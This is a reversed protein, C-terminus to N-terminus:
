GENAGRPRDPNAINKGGHHLVDDIILDIKRFLDAIDEQYPGSEPTGAVIGAKQMKRQIAAIEARHGNLLKTVLALKKQGMAKRAAKVQSQSFFPSDGRGPKYKLRLLSEAETQNFGLMKLRRMGENWPAQKEFLADVLAQGKAMKEAHAALTSSPDGKAGKLKDLYQKTPYFGGGPKKIPDGEMDVLHGAVISREIDVKDWNIQADKAARDAAAAARNAEAQQAPSLAELTSYPVTKGNVLYPKNGKTMVIGAAKSRVPDIQALDRKLAEEARKDAKTQSTSAQQAGLLGQALAVQQRQAAQLQQLFQMAAQPRGAALAKIASAKARAAERTTGIFAANAEQTARLNQAAISNGMSFQQAASTQGLQYAPLTAGRFNEVAAQEAGAITTAGAPGGVGVGPAGVAGLSRNAAAVDAATAGSMAAGLSGGLATIGQAAGEYSKGVRGMLEANMAAAARGASQLAEMHRQADGQAEAYEADILKQQYTQQTQAMRNARAEIQAPTEFKGLSALLSSYTTPGAAAPKPKPPKYSQQQLPRNMDWGPRKSALFGLYRKYRGKPKIKKFEQYSLAPAYQRAM